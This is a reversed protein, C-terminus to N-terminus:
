DLRVGENAIQAAQIYRMPMAPSSWGGADMLRDLPADNRAACTAWYHRADHTSLGSVGIQEGLVRVRHTISRTSLGRDLLRGGRDSARLLPGSSLGARELYARAASLTDDSLRHTQTQDVKARYFTLEGTSLDLHEISLCFPLSRRISLM